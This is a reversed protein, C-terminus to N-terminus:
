YTVKLVSIVSVWYASAMQSLSSRNILISFWLHSANRSLFFIVITRVKIDEVPWNSIVDSVHGKDNISIFM